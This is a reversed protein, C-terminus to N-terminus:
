ASVSPPLFGSCVGSNQMTVTPSGRAGNDRLVRYIDKGYKELISFEIRPIALLEQNTAPRSAVLSRLTRDNFIRFAQLGRRRAEVLRWARLAAEVRAEIGAQVSFGARFNLM